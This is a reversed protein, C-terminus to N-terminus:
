VDVQHVVGLSTAELTSLRERVEDHDANVKLEVEYM